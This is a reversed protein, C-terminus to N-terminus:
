QPFLQRHTPPPNVQKLQGLDKKATDLFTQNMELLDVSAFQKALLQKTIRGIGAGVDLASGLAIQKGGKGSIFLKM